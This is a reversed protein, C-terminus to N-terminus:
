VAKFGRHIRLGKFYMSPKKEANFSNFGLKPTYHPLEESTYLAERDNSNTGDGDDFTSYIKIFSRRQGPQECQRQLVPQFHPLHNIMNFPEAKNPPEQSNRRVCSLSYLQQKNPQIETRHRPKPIIILSCWNINIGL